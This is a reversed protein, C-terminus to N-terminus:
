NVKLAMMKVEPLKQSGKVRSSEHQSRMETVEDGKSELPSVSLSVWRVM